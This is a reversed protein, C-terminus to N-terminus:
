KTNSLAKDDWFLKLFYSEPNMKQFYVNLVNICFVPDNLSSNKKIKYVFVVCFYNVVVNKSRYCKYELNNHLLWRNSIRGIM